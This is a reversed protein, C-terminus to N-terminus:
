HRTSAFELQRRAGGFVARIARLVARALVVITALLVAAIAAAWYPHRGALWTIFVAVADEGISLAINSFPEPSPTVAVRVATKGGHAV